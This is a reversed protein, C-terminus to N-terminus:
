ITASCFSCIHYQLYFIANYLLMVYTLLFAHIVREIEIFLKKTIVITQFATVERTEKRENGTLLNFFFISVM